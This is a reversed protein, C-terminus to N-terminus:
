HCGLWYFRGYPPEMVRARRFAAELRRQHRVTRRRLLDFPITLVFIFILFEVM